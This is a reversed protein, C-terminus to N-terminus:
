GQHTDSILIEEEVDHNGDHFFPDAVGGMSRNLVIFSSHDFFNVWNWLSRADVGKNSGMEEEEAYFAATGGTYVGRILKVGRM